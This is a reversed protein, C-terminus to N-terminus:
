AIKLADLALGYAGRSSPAGVGAVFSDTSKRLITQPRVTDM